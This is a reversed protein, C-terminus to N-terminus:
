NKNLNKLVDMAPIMPVKTTTGKVYSSIISDVFSNTRNGGAVDDFFVGVVALKNETYHQHVFHVELDYYKGDITHESPSHVHFQLLRYATM